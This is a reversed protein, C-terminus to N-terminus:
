VRDEQKYRETKGSWRKRQRDQERERSYIVLCLTRLLISSQECEIAKKYRETKGRWKKRQETKSGKEATIELFLRLSIYFHGNTRM